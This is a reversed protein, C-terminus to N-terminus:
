EGLIRGSDTATGYASSAAEGLVDQILKNKDESFYWRYAEKAIPASVNSGEGGGEVLVTLAIKPNNAPAYSTYWAHTRNKPDGYEATGTKGATPIPFTFFPWATGGYKPVMELGKKVLNIKDSSILNSILVKSKFEAVKSNGFTIKNILQPQYLIGNGAIFSTIGLVQLPTTLVFGQGIAMHLSDGPFWVENFNKRKWEDDPVLGSTESPLDIKLKEGLNLKRAMAILADKGIIQAVEYFYIDNSRQIAKLLNVQGEVKGYENFYWNTFKYPGLYIFGNDQFTTEPSIKGSTLAALSSVIKFTSGPPYTGAIARDLIPSFPNSFIESIKADEGLTIANPDFSPLSFLALVQGNVPDMAVVAGCCSGVKNIQEKTLKFLKDQLNADINLYINQGPVPPDVRLVRVKEGGSNVEIIEGGDNGKLVKEYEEEIGGKGIRDGPRYNKFEVTKLQEESIESVYGLVHAFEEGYSYSRVNDVELDLVRPDNKVELELAEERSILKAKKGGAPSNKDFLRFAPSNSALVKGSRDYIVGRPAHILKIQIRNGDALERNQKGEIIQLHFIRIFLIFFIILFVILFASVRWPNQKLQHIEDPNFNPLFTDKWNDGKEKQFRSKKSTVKIVENEFSLGLNRKKKVM